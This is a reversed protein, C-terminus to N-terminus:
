NLRIGLVISTKFPAHCSSQAQERGVWALHVCEGRVEITVERSTVKEVGQFMNRALCTYKGTGLMSDYTVLTGETDNIETEGVLWTFDPEPREDATCNVEEGVYRIVKGNSADDPSPTFSIEGVADIALLM